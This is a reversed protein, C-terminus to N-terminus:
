KGPPVEPCIDVQRFVGDSDQLVTFPEGELRQDTWEYKKTIAALKESPVITVKGSDADLQLMDFVKISWTKKKPPWGNNKKIMYQKTDEDMSDFYSLLQAESWQSDQHWTFPIFLRGNRTFFPTKLTPAFDHMKGDDGMRIRNHGHLDIFINENMVKLSHKGLELKYLVGTNCVVYCDKDMGFGVCSISLYPNPLSILETSAGSAIDLLNIIYYQKGKTETRLAYVLCDDLAMIPRALPDLKQGNTWSWRPMNNTLTRTGMRVRLSGNDRNCTYANFGDFAVFSLAPFEIRPFRVDITACDGKDAYTFINQGAVFYVKSAASVPATQASLTSSALLAASLAILMRLYPM